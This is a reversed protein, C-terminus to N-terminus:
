WTGINLVLGSSFQISNRYNIDNLNRNWTHSYGLAVRLVLARNLKREVGTGAVVAFANNDWARAFEIYPPPWTNNTQVDRDSLRKKEPDLHEQTIKTGGVLLQAHMGWRQSRQNSWRPGVVYTLSDGSVQSYSGFSPMVPLATMSCGNVEAVIQWENAIRFGVGAGGGVCSGRSDTGVYIKFVALAHFEFPAVGAPPDSKQVLPSSFYTASDSTSPSPRNTRYWPYRGGILNAFAHAPNLLSRAM